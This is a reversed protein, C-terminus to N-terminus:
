RGKKYCKWCVNQRGVRVLIANKYRRGCWDCLFLPNMRVPGALEREWRYMGRKAGRAKIYYRWGTQYEALGLVKAKIGSKTVVTDGIDFASSMRGTVSKVPNYWKGSRARVVQPTQPVIGAIEDERYSLEELFEKVLEKNAQQRTDKDFGGGFEDKYYRSVSATLYDFLKEAKVPDFTGRKVKRYLNRWMMMKRNYFGEYNDIMLLLERVEWDAM